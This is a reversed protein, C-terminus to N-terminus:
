EASWHEECRVRWWREQRLKGLQGCYWCAVLARAAARKEIADIDTQRDGDYLYSVRLGGSKEHAALFGLNEIEAFEKVLDDLIAHWGAGVHYGERARTLDGDYVAAKRRAEVVRENSAQMKARKAEQSVKGM